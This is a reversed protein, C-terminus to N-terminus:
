KSKNPSTAAPGSKNGPMGKVGSMDQQGTTPAVNQGTVQGNPKVTPGSKSGPMGPTGPHSSGDTNTNAAQQKSSMTGITSPNTQSWAPLTAMAAIAIGSLLAKM